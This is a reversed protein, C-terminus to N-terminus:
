QNLPKEHMIHDSIGDKIVAKRFAALARGRHSVRNKQEQSIEAFTTNLPPYYFVPDYGFGGLGVPKRTIYGECIGTTKWEFGDLCVFALACVFRATRRKEDVDQLEKLLKTNRAEPTPGFRSSFVGPRGGLADVELGSDDALSALGTFSLVAYAKILANEMFTTGNEHIEPINDFGKLSFLVIGTNLLLDTFESFKGRNKTAIVLKM